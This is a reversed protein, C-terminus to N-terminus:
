WTCGSMKVDDMERLEAVLIKYVQQVDQLEDRLRQAKRLHLTEAMEYETCQARLKKNELMMTIIEHVQRQKDGHVPQVQIKDNSKLGATNGGPVAQRKLAETVAIYSEQRKKRPLGTPDQAKTVSASGPIDVRSCVPKLTVAPVGSVTETHPFQHFPVPVGGNVMPQGVESCTGSHHIQHAPDATRVMTQHAKKSSYGVLHCHYDWYELTMDKLRTELKYYLTSKEFDQKDHTPKLFNVELVGAVGRGKRDSLVPWFPLILRNKHYINFGHINLYPAGDLFGITTIVKAEMNEAVQPKYRICERFKLDNVIHHPDVVQGRLIIKFSEPLHLYLISMYVRLSYRLRNAIHKQNIIKRQMIKSAGSIMIDEADSDFDLEMDGHDNLWLNFVIIKTGHHGLDNFQKLLGVETAFPSWRLLTSLNSSFQKEGHRILSQFVGTSPNFEYDVMPVVIDDCGTQRLFTYSLLGVSQTLTRRNMCRSFVIVDAGLRMTSTKFGNGYQGISSESQKDSFGFSMCRRLSESDMGGGDDQILLAHNGDRTNTIKDVRVFTAGNQLEDVANDLLEAIAGFAWKHSTANSHLFKPHVRLRGRVCKSIPEFTVGAVYDGAKWFQRCLPVSDPQRPVHCFTSLHGQDTRCSGNPVQNSGILEFGQRTAFEEIEPHNNTIEPRAKKQVLSSRIGPDVDKVETVEDSCLDAFDAFSM